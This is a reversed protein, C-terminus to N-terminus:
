WVKWRGEERYINLYDAVGDELSTFEHTYGAARLRKTEAQTFYQYADRIDEPIPIYEVSYERNLARFTAAALDNFTRAMGTGLNYIGCREPDRNELFHILVRAVDKVYIFDRAQQGHGYDPRHSMFLKLKGTHEIQETAHYIVSAMRGKHYENPGYVNFFKFGMWYYPTQKQGLVWLDFDNKSRAYPNLPVLRTILEPNDDFGHEGAGYTAASSAYLFPIQGKACYEFLKQSYELNLKLFPQPDRATTDTRAGLHVVAQVENEKGALFELLRSRDILLSYKKDAYNPKKEPREFDDCLVLDYYNSENLAAALASGIFGAAGTIVIM